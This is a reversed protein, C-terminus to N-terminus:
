SLNQNQSIKGAIQMDGNENITLVTSLDGDLGAYDISFAHGSSSDWTPGFRVMNEKNLNYLYRGNKGIASITTGFSDAGQNAENTVGLKWLRNAMDGDPIDIKM